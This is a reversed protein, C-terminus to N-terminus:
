AGPRKFQLPLHGGYNADGKNLAPLADLKPELGKLALEALKDCYRIMQSPLTDSGADASGYLMMAFLPLLHESYYGTNRANIEPLLSLESDVVIGVREGPALSEPRLHNALVLHWGIREPNVHPAADFVAYACLADFPVIEGLSSLRQPIHSAVVVSVRRGDIMKTNTDIALLYSVQGKIQRWPDFGPLETAAPVSLVVKDKGSRREYYVEAKLTAPDVETIEFGETRSDYTVTIKKVVSPTKGLLATRRAQTLKRHKRGM